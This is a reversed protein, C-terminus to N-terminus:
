DNDDGDEAEPEPDQPLDIPGDPPDIIPAPFAVSASPNPGHPLFLTIHIEGDIRHIPGAITPHLARAQESEITAGDPLISLDLEDGNITLTDGAKSVSLTDDRRQPSLSIQM